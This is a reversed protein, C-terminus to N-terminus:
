VCCENLKMHGTTLKLMNPWATVKFMSRKVGFSLWKMEAWLVSSVLTQHLDMWACWLYQLFLMHVSSVCLICLCCLFVIVGTSSLPPFLMFFSDMCVHARVTKVAVRCLHVRGAMAGALWAVTSLKGVRSPPLSLQGLRNYTCPVPITNEMLM